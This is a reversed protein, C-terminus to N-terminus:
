YVDTFDKGDPNTSQFKVVIDVLMHTKESMKTPDKNQVQLNVGMMEPSNERSKRGWKKTAKTREQYM